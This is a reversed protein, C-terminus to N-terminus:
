ASQLRPLLEEVFYKYDKHSVGFTIRLNEEVQKAFEKVTSVTVMSAYPGQLTKVLKELCYDFLNTIREDYKCFIKQMENIIKKAVVMEGDKYITVRNFSERLRRLEDYNVLPGGKEMECLVCECNFFYRQKLIEQRAATNRIGALYSIKPSM